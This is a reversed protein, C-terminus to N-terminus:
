FRPRFVGLEQRNAPQQRKAPLVPKTQVDHMKGGALSQDIQTRGARIPKWNTHLSARMIQMEGCLGNRTTRSLALARRWDPATFIAFDQPLSQPISHNIERGGVM